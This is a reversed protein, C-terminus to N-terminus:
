DIMNVVANMTVQNVIFYNKGSISYKEYVIASVTLPNPGSSTNAIIDDSKITISSAGKPVLRTFNGLVVGLEDYNKAEPFQILMDKGRDHNENFAVSDLIPFNKVIKYEFAPVEASGSVKWEIGNEFDLDVMGGFTYMGGMNQMKNGNVFVDGAAVMQGPNQDKFFLAQTMNLPANTDGYITQVSASLVGDATALDESDIQGITQSLPIKPEKEKECAFSVSALLAVSALLKIIKM